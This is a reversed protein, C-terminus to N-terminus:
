CVIFQHLFIAEAGNEPKFQGHGHRWMEPTRCISVSLIFFRCSGNTEQLSFVSVAFKRQNAEFPFPHKNEKTLVRYPYDV